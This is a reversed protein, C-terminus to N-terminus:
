ARNRWYGPRKRHHAIALVTATTNSVVFVVDFPFRKMGIRKVGREGLSGPWPHATLLDSRLVEIVRELEDRFDRGLGPRRDEYWRAAAEAELVAAELLYVFRM